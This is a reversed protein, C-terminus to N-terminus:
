HPGSTPTPLQLVHCLHKKLQVQSTKTLALTANTKVSLGKTVFNIQLCLATVKAQFTGLRQDLNELTWLGTSQIDEILKKKHQGVKQELKARKEKLLGVLRRKFAKCGEKKVAM